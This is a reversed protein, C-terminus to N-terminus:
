RTSTKKLANGRVCGIQKFIGHLVQNGLFPAWAIHLYELSTDLHSRDSTNLYENLHNLAHKYANYGQHAVLVDSGCLEPWEVEDDLLQKCVNKLNKDGKKLKRVCTNLVDLNRLIYEVNEM